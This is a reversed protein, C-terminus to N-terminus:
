EDDPLNKKQHFKVFIHKEFTFHKKNKTQKLKNKQCISILPIKNNEFINKQLIFFIPALYHCLCSLGGNELRYITGCYAGHSSSEAELKGLYKVM